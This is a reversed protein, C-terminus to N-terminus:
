SACNRSEQKPFNARIKTLTSQSAVDLNRLQFAIKPMTTSRAAVKANRVGQKIMTALHQRAAEDTKFMGLSIGWRLDSNEQIVYFDEIGLQRLEVAKRDASEKDGLSPLYVMHRDQEPVNRKTSRSGLGLPAIQADFRRADAGDFNGIEVCNQSMSVEPKSVGVTRTEKLPEKLPEKLIPTDDDALDPTTSASLNPIGKDGMNGPGSASSDKVPKPAVAADVLRIRQPDLQNTVRAPERGEVSTKGLYGTNYAYLVANMLVLLGLIIKVM